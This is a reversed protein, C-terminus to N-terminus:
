SKKAYEHPTKSTGYFDGSSVTLNDHPKVAVTKEASQFNQKEPTFFDGEPRLNDHPKIQTPREAAHYKPIEPREFDGEPKLNDM